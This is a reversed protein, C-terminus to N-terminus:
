EDITQAELTEYNRFRRTIQGWERIKNRDIRYEESLHSIAEGQRVRNVIALRVKYSYKM